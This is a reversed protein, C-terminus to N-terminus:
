WGKATRDRNLAEERERQREAQDNKQGQLKERREKEAQSEGEFPDSSDPTNEPQEGEGPQEEPEQPEQGDSQLDQRKQELREGADSAEQDAQSETGQGQGQQQEQDESDGEGGSSSMVCPQVWEQASAYLEDAQAIDSDKLQDGMSEYAASTNMRVLCEYTFAQIKGQEDVVAKPVTEFAREFYTLAEEANGQALIATGANYQPVWTAPFPLSTETKFVVRADAYAESQCDRIGLWSWVQLIVLVLGAVFTVVIFPLSVWLAVLLTRNRKTPRPPPTLAGFPPLIESPM